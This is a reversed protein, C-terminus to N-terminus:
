QYQVCLSSCFYFPFFFEQKQKTKRKEECSTVLFSIGNIEREISRNILKCLLLQQTSKKEMMPIHEKKKLESKQVNEMKSVVCAVFM